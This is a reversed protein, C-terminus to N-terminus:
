QSADGRPLAPWVAVAIGVCAGIMHALPVPQFNAAVSDVFLTQGTAIEFALKLGLGVQSAAIITIWPWDRTAWKEILLYGSLMTFLGTDIGSLGRYTNLEPLYFCIGLPILVASVGLCMLYRGCHRAECIAGLVVFVALDWVLHNWDWHTLHGTFIQWLHGHAVAERDFQMQFSM